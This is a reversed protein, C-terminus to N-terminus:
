VRRQPPTESFEALEVKTGEAAKLRQAYWRALPGASFGHAFVSLLITWTAVTVLTDIPKGASALEEFALLTFVVSALGRPGFWGVLAITDRRFGMGQLALAVPLMRILTLSLAAYLLPRWDTTFVLAASVLVAGFITWVLLSLLASLTETFSTPEAFQNRSVYSFTIGSVFAAIFGNGQLLVTSFYATLGIALIALREMAHSSWERQRAEVLLWAGLAGMLAGFAVGLAIAGLASLLWHNTEHGETSIAFALFLSVFPTAIGDNLGSEVNLARRIRVPVLPNTFIPLGLAADTPALIAAILAAFALGEGPLLVLAVLTGLALTLLMGVTLLRVPLQEDERVQRLNLTSADAFLLVALTFETVSKIAEAQTSLILVGLVRPGLLFGILVFVMPGTISWRGLKAAFVSYLAILAALITLDVGM